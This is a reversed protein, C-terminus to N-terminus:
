GRRRRISGAFLVSLGGLLLAFTSPEPIVATTLVVNNGDLAITGGIGSGGIDFVVFSAFTGSISASEFLTYTQGVDFGSGASFAFDAAGIVDIGLGLSSSVIKDFSSGLTFVFAGTDNAAAAIDLGGSFTLLATSDSGASLRSGAALTTFGGITGSGGLLGGSNVTVSSGAALSGDIFLSGGDVITAGTYTNVGALTLSTGDGAKTLAVRATAGDKVVGAFTSDTTTSEVTLTATGTGAANNTVTGKFDGSGGSLAGVKQSRTNLDLVGGATAGGHITLATGTALRDDGNILQVIGGTGNITTAGSYDNAAGIRLLANNVVNFTVGTGAVGSSMQGAITHIGGARNVNVTLNDNLTLGANVTMSASAFVSGFTLTANGSAVDFILRGAGGSVNNLQYHHTPAGGVSGITFAGVTFSADAGLSDALLLTQNAVIGSTLMRAAAGTGDPLAASWNAADGWYQTGGANNYDVAPLTSVATLALAVALSPRLLTQM